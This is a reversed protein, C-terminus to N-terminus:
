ISYGHEKAEETIKNIYGTLHMPGENMKDRQFVLPIFDESMLCRQPVDSMLGVHVPTQRPPAGLEHMRRMNDFYRPYAADMSQLPYHVGEHLFCSIKAGKEPGEEVVRVQFKSGVPVMIVVVWPNSDYPEPLFDVWSRALGPPTATTM